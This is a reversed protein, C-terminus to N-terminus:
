NQITKFIASGKKENQLKNQLLIKDDNQLLPGQPATALERSQSM